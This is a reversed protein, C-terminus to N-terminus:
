PYINLTIFNATDSLVVNMINNKEVLSLNNYLTRMSTTEDTMTRTKTGTLDDNGTTLSGDNIILENDNYASILNKDDRTNNRNETNDITETLTRKSGGSKDFANLQIIDRWKDGHVKVVMEAIEPLTFLNMKSFLSRDGYNIILLRDMVENQGDGLFPLPTLKEIEEFLGGQVMFESLKIM